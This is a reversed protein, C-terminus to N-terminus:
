TLAYTSKPYQFSYEYGQMGKDSLETQTASTKEIEYLVSPIIFGHATIEVTNSKGKSYDKKTITYGAKKSLLTISQINPDFNKYVEWREQSTQFNQSGINHPDFLAALPGAVVSGITM